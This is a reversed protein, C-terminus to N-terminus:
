GVNVTPALSATVKITGMGVTCVCTCTTNVAPAGSIMTHLCGPMWPAAVMPTCPAYVGTTAFTANAPNTMSRCLVFPRINAGTAIATSNQAPQGTANVTSLMGLTMPASGWMCEVPSNNNVLQGTTVGPVAVFNAPAPQYQVPPFFFNVVQAVTNVLTKLGSFLSAFM